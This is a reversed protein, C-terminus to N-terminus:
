PQFLLLSIWTTLLAVILSIIGSIIAAVLTNTRFLEKRRFIMYRYYRDCVSYTDDPIPSGFSDLDDGYNPAILEYQNYLTTFYKIKSREKRGHIRVSILSWFEGSKLHINEFPEAM